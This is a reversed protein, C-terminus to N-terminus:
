IHLSMEYCCHPNLILVSECDWHYLNIPESFRTENEGKETLWIADYQESIKEFDLCSYLPFSIKKNTPLKVLDEFSNIILINAYDHLKLLFSEEKKCDEFNVTECLDKWGFNSNIPSTWLGGHPKNIFFRNKIPKVIDPNYKKSGYHILILEVM